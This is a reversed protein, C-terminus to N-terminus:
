QPPPRIFGGFKWEAGSKVMNVLETRGTGQIEVSLVTQNESVANQTLINLGTIRSVDSQHKAAIETENKGAWVQGIRQQEATSLSQLYTSPNGEKMAWIASVLAAEPSEYGAFSWQERPFSTSRAAKGDPSSTQSTTTPSPTEHLRRIEQRARELEQAQSRSQSAQNRLRLLEQQEAQHRSDQDKQRQKLKETEASMEAQARDLESRVFALEAQSRQYLRWYHVAAALAVLALISPILAKKM